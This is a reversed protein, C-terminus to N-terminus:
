TQIIPYYLMTSQRVILNFLGTHKVFNYNKILEFCINVQVSQFWFVYAECLYCFLITFSYLYNSHHIYDFSLHVSFLHIPIYYSM